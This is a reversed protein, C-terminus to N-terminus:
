RNPLRPKWTPSVTTSQCRKMVITSPIAIATPSCATGSASACRGRSAPPPRCGSARRAQVARLGLPRRRERPRHARREGREGADEERGLHQHADLPQRQQDDVGERRRDDSPEAAERERDRATEEDAQERREREREEVEAAPPRAHGLRDRREHEEDRQERQRRRRDRDAALGCAQVGADGLDPLRRETANTSTSATPTAADLTLTIVWFRSVLPSSTTSTSM